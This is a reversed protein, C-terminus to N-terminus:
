ARGGKKGINFRYLLWATALAAMLAAVPQTEVAIAAVLMMVTVMNVRIATRRTVAMDAIRSYFSSKSDLWQNIVRHIERVREGLSVRVDVQQATFDISTQQM